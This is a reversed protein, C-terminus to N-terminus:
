GEMEALHSQDLIMDEEEDVNDGKNENIGDFGTADFRKQDKFPKKRREGKKIIAGAPIIAKPNLYLLDSGSYSDISHIWADFVGDRDEILRMNNYIYEQKFKEMTDHHIDFDIPPRYEPDTPQLNENVRSVKDNYSAFIPHELLLGLSPMKPINVVQPGYM